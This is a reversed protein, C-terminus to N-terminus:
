KLLKSILTYVAYIVVASLVTLGAINIVLEM